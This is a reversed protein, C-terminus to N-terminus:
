RFRLRRRPAPIVTLPNDVHRLNAFDDLDGARRDVNLEGLPVQRLDVVRDPDRALAEVNGLRDRDDALDLLVQALAAHTRDGHFRGVAHHASHLGLVQALGDRHRDPRLYQAAHEVDDALGDVLHSRDLGLLAERDMAGCGREFVLGSRLLHELRADFDNVEDLGEQLAALDPQEAARADALGDDDHLQDVVDSELMAAHRHERAHALAGALAVIEPHFHLLRAHEVGLIIRLGLHRQDVALHGLRGSRAQADPQGTQGDGLVEAVGLVLIHQQEHVVDEAERLGTRFHRRQQAAHGGGNAVLRGQGRLHAREFLADGGGLVARDGGHLGDVHGRVVVGIRSRRRGESVEVRRRVERARDGSIPM